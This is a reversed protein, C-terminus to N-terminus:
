IKIRTNIISKKLWGLILVRILISSRMVNVLTKRKVFYSFNNKYIYIERVRLWLDNIFIFYFYSFGQLMAYGM